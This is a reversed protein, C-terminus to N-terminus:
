SRNNGYVVFRGQALASEWDDLEMGKWNWAVM